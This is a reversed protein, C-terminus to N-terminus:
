DTDNLLSDDFEVEVKNTERNVIKKGRYNIVSYKKGKNHEVYMLANTVNHFPHTLNLEKYILARFCELFIGVDLFTKSSKVPDLKGIDMGEQQLEGILRIILEDALVDAAKKTQDVRIKKQIRETDSKKVAPLEEGSPFSYVKATM